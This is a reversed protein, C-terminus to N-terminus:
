KLNRRELYEKLTQLNRSCAVMYRREDEVNHAKYATTEVHSTQGFFPLAALDSPRHYGVLCRMVAVQAPIITVGGLWCHELVEDFAQKMAEPGLDKGIIGFRSKFDEINEITIGEKGFVRFWIAEEPLDETRVHLSQFNYSRPIKNEDLALTIIEFAADFIYGFCPAFMFFFFWFPDELHEFLPSVAAILCYVVIFFVFMFAKFHQRLTFHM